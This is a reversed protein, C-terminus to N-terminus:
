GRGQRRNHPRHRRPKTRVCRVVTRAKAKRKGKAKAVKVKHPRKGKPCRAKPPPGPAEAAPPQTAGPSPASSAPGAAVAVTGSSGTANGAPDTATVTVEYTGPAAFAHTVTAGSATTGDGFSWSLSASGSFADTAAASFALAEGATGSGPISVAGLQPASGDLAASQIVDVNNGYHPWIATADGHPDIAVEPATWDGSPASLAVPTSWAGGAPREAAAVVGGDATTARWLVVADGAPDVALGLAGELLGPPSIQTPPSWVGTGAREEAARVVYEGSPLYQDWAVVADGQGDLAVRTAAGAAEENPGLLDQAAGWAEGAMRTRVQVLNDNGASNNWAVAVDGRADVALHPYYAAQGSASLNVPISWGGSPSRQSEQVAIGNGNPRQWVATATGTGDIGVLPEAADQGTASLQEPSSWPGGITAASSAEVISFGGGNEKVWVAVAEGEANVAVKPEAAVYFLNTLKAPVSWALAGALHTSVEIEPAAGYKEWVAVADGSADVAVDPEGYESGAPAIAVPTTWGASGARRSASEITDDVGDWEQWVAVADGQSDVAVKSGFAEVTSPSVDVTPTWSPAAQAAPALAAGLAAVCLVVLCLAAALAVRGLRSAPYRNPQPRATILLPNTLM